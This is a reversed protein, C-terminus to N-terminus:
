YYLYVFSIFAPICIWAVCTRWSGSEFNELVSWAVLAAVLEGTAFAAGMLTVLRGRYKVPTIEALIVKALPMLAGISMGVFFMVFVFSWYSNVLASWLNTITLTFIFILFPKRRGIRDAMQGIVLSGVFFGMFLTGILIGEFYIFNGFERKLLFMIVSLILFVGGDAIGACLVGAYIKM